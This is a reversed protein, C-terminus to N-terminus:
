ESEYSEFSKREPLFSRLGASDSVWLRGDPLLAKPSEWAVYVWDGERQVTFGRREPDFVFLEADGVQVTLDTWSSELRDGGSVTNRLITLNSSSGGTELAEDGLAGPSADDVDLPRLSDTWLAVRGDAFRAYAGSRTLKPGAVPPSGLDHPGQSAGTQANVLWALGDESILLLDGPREPLFVPTRAIGGLSELQIHWRPQGRDDIRVVEGRRNAVVHDEGVPVPAASVRHQNSWAFESTRHLAIELDGPREVTLTRSECGTASFTLELPVGIASRLTCPTLRVRGDPTAVSAASPHSVVRFPLLHETPKPCPGDLAAAAGAHDGGEALELAKRVALAHDRVGEYESRLEALSQLSTDSALLRDYALVARELDGAQAHARATALLIDQERDRARSMREELQQSRRERRASVLAHLEDLRFRFAISDSPADFNSLVEQMEVLLQILDEETRLEEASAELPLDLEVARRDLREALASLLDTRGGIREASLDLAPPPALDLTRRLALVPDGFRCLEDVEACSRRFAELRRADEERKLAVLEARLDRINAAEAPDEPFESDLIQLAVEPRALEARVDTLREEIARYTRYRILAVVSLALGTSLAALTSWRRRRRKELELRAANALALAEVHDPVSRLVVRVPLLAREAQHQVLNERAADLLWRAGEEFLGSELMRKGLEIRTQQKSPLHSSALQLLMRSRAPRGQEQFLRALRLLDHYTRADPEETSVLRLAVEHMSALQDGRQVEVLSRWRERSARVDVHIHDIKRLLARADRAELAPLSLALRGSEWEGVLLDADGMSPAGPPACRVWGALRTAARGVRARELEHQAVALLERPQAMRLNGASLHSGVTARTQLLPWALRDSIEQLTSAGDCQLLFDRMEPTHRQPDLARPIDFGELTSAPGTSAEDAMRAHELLVFEVTMGPGWAFEYSTEEAGSSRSSDSAHGPPPPLPGPEFRFHLNPASMMQYFTELRAARAISVRRATELQPSPDDAFARQCRERWEGEDENPASLVYMQGRKLGLSASLKEGYLSLVGDRGGRALGQLLEGLGIGAVDGQFSM